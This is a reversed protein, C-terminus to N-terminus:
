RSPIINVIKASASQGPMQFSAQGIVPQRRMSVNHEVPLSTRRPLTVSHHVVPTSSTGDAVIDPAKPGFDTQMGMDRGLPAFIEQLPSFIEPVPDSRKCNETHLSDSSLSPGVPASTTRTLHDSVQANSKKAWVSADAALSKEALLELEGRVSQAFTSHPDGQTCSQAISAITSPAEGGSEILEPISVGSSSPYGESDRKTKQDASIIDAHAPTDPRGVTAQRHAAVASARTGLPGMVTPNWTLLRKQLHDRCEKLNINDIIMEIGLEYCERRTCKNYDRHVMYMERHRGRLIVSVGNADSAKVAVGGQSLKDCGLIRVQRIRKGNRPSDVVSEFHPYLKVLHAQCVRTSASPISSLSDVPSRDGSSLCNVSARNSLQDSAIDEDAGEM